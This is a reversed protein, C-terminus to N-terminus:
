INMQISTFSGGASMLSFSIREAPRVSEIKIGGKTNGNLDWAFGELWNQWFCCIGYYSLPLEPTAGDNIRELVSMPRVM